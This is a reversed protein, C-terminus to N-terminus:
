GPLRRSVVRMPPLKEGYKWILWPLELGRSLRPIFTRPQAVLRWLWGLYFRDVWDPIAAQDGTVFGLAAGICHIAPRYSLNECLYYGLKEQAGSGIAVIVHAPRHQEILALLNRDEVKSRYQPAVYCNEMTVSFSGRQSWDVLKQRARENPLVWFVETGEGKLKGLLHKLYKLGSIRQVSERQSLRWLIVMFSSDAIALDASVVAHRYNQDERLRAFCTGSPAVLFGGHQFMSAVAEDVDGSFFQIGLIQQTPTM